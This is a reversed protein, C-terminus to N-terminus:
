PRQWNCIGGTKCPWVQVRTDFAQADLPNGHRQALRVRAAGRPKEVRSVRATRIHARDISNSEVVQDPVSAPEASAQPSVDASSDEIAVPAFQTPPGLPKPSLVAVPLDLGLFENPRYEGPQTEAAVSTGAWTLLAACVAVHRINKAIATNLIM